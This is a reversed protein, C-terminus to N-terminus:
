NVCGFQVNVPNATPAVPLAMTISTGATRASIYPHLLSAMNTPATSGSGDYSFWCGTSATMSTSNIVLTTAGAAVQVKGASASGCIAPSATSSCVSTTLYQAAKMTTVGSISGAVFGLNTGLTLTGSITWAADSKMASTGSRYLNSSADGFNLGYSNTTQAGFNLRGNANFNFM